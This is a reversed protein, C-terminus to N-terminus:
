PRAIFALAVLVSIVILVYGLLYRAERDALEFGHYPRYPGRKMQINRPKPTTGEKPTVRVKPLTAELSSHAQTREHHHYHLYAVQCSYM